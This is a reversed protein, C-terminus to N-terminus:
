IIIYIGEGRGKFLYIFLLIVLMVEKDFNSLFNDDIKFTREKERYCTNIKRVM